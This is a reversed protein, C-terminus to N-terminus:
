KDVALKGDRIGGSTEIAYGAAKFLELAQEKTLDGKDAFSISKFEPGTKAKAIVFDYRGAGNHLFIADDSLVEDGRADITRGSMSLCIMSGDGLRKFESYGRDIKKGARETYSECIYYEKDLALSGSSAIRDGAKATPGLGDKERKDDYGFTIQAGRKEVFGKYGALMLKGEFRGDRNDPNMMDFQVGGLFTLAPTVLGMIPMGNYDNIIKENQSYLAGWADSMDSINKLGSGAPAAVPAAAAAKEPQSASASDEAPKQPAKGGGCASFLLAVCVLLSFAAIRKKM